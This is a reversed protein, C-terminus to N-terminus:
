PRDDGHDDHGDEAGADRVVAGIEPEAGVDHGQDEGHQQEDRHESM